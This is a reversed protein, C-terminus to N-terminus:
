CDAGYPPTNIKTKSYVINGLGTSNQQPPLEIEDDVTIEFYYESFTEDIQANYSLPEDLLIGNMIEVTEKKFNLKRSSIKTKDTGPVIEEEEVFIEIDFNKNQDDVNLEQIDILIPQDRMSYVTEDSGSSPTYIINYDEETTQDNIKKQIDYICDELNIQPLKLFSQCIDYNGSANNIFQEIAGSIKGNIINLAWSPAYDSANSSNALPYSLAYNKDASIQSEEQKLKGIETQLLTNLKVSNEISTYTTQPKLVLTEELIRTQINNQTEQLDAYEGDYIIDDDFFAYYAPKFKGRSILYRGYTTLEVKLIEQKDDFFSM